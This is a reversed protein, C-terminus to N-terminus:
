GEWKDYHIKTTDFKDKPKVEEAPHGIVAISFPMINDPLNFLESLPRCVFDKPYVGLWVSGLGLEAAQLLINQTAASCDQMWYNNETSKNTDACVIIALPAEKMMQSYPHIEMIENLIDRNQVVIFEWPQYNRASPAAMGAKMLMEVQDPSIKEDTYKRISTREFIMNM